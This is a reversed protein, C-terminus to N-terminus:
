HLFLLFYMLFSIAKRNTLLVWQCWCPAFSLYDWLNWVLSVYFFATSVSLLSRNCIHAIVDSWYAYGQVKDSCLGSQLRLTKTVHCWAQLGLFPIVAACLRARSESLPSWSTLSTWGSVNLLPARPSVVSNVVESRDYDVIGLAKRCLWSYRHRIQETIM